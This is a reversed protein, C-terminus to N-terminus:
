RQRPTGSGTTFNPKHEIDALIQLHEKIMGRALKATNVILLNRGSKLYEEQLKLLENHGDIQARLYERDFDAGQMSQLRQLSNQGQQDLHQRVEADSAQKVEGRMTGPNQISKVVDAITEQEAVEFRAFEKLNPDGAKQLAVRSSALALSGLPMLQNMYRNEADGIGTGQQQSQALSPSAILAALGAVIIRREYM